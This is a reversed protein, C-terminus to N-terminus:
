LKDLFKAFRYLREEQHKKLWIKVVLSLTSIQAGKSRQRYETKGPDNLTTGKAPIVLRM